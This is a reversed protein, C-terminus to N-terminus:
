IWPTERNKYGGSKSLLQEFPSSTVAAKKNDWLKKLIKNIDSITSPSIILEDIEIEICFPFYLFGDPFEKAKQKDYDENRRIELLFGSKDVYKSDIVEAAILEAILNIWSEIEQENIFTYIRCFM